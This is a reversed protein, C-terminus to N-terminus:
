YDRSMRWRLLVVDAEACQHGQGPDNWNIDLATYGSKVPNSEKMQVDPYLAQCSPCLHKTKFTNPDMTWWQCQSVYAAFFGDMDSRQLALKAAAIQENVDTNRDIFEGMEDRADKYKKLLLPPYRQDWLRREWQRPLPVKLPCTTCSDGILNNTLDFCVAAPSFTESNMRWTGLAQLEPTQTNFAPGLKDYRKSALATYVPKFISMTIWNHWTSGSREPPNDMELQFDTLLRKINEGAKRLKSLEEKHSKRNKGNGSKQIWREYCQEFSCILVFFYQRVIYSERLRVETPAELQILLKCIGYLLETFQHLVAAYNNWQFDQLEKEWDLIGVVELEESDWELFTSIKFEEPPMSGPRHRFRLRCVLSRLGQKDIHKSCFNLRTTRVSM